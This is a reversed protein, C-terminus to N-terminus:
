YLDKLIEDIISPIRETVALTCSEGFTTNDEIEVAYITIMKPMECGFTRGLRIASIIDVGHACSLNSLLGADSLQLRYLFGAAEKGTKISDIIVLREYGAIVDMIGAGTEMTEVIDLDPMRAKIGRAIKIGVSDDTLIPNGIGMLLLPMLKSGNILTM